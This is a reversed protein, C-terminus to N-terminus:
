PSLPMFNLLEQRPANADFLRYLPVSLLLNISEAPPLTTLTNLVKVKQEWVATKLYVLRINHVM